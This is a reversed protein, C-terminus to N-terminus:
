LNEIFNEFINKRKEKFELYIRQLKGIGLFSSNNKMSNTHTPTSDM